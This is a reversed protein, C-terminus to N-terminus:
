KIQEPRPACWKQVAYLQYGEVEVDEQVIDFHGLKSVWTVEYPRPGPTPPIVSM